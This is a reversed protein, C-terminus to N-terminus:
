AREAVLASEDGSEKQLMKAITKGHVPTIEHPGVASEATIFEKNAKAVSLINKKIVFLDLVGYILVTETELQSLTKYTDTQIITNRLSKKFAPWTDETVEMGKILPLFQVVGNAAALTMDKKRSIIRFIKSYLDEKQWFKFSDYKKPLKRFLPLGLLILKSVLDPRKKAIEIAVICGMSHGSILANKIKMKDLTAIVVDAHNSPTYECDEPKDADGFGLLDMAIVRNRKYDFNELVYTWSKHNNGLGHILVVPDGIGKDIQIPLTRGM